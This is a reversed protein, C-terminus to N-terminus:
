ILVLLLSVCQSFIGLAKFCLFHLLRNQVFTERCLYFYLSVYSQQKNYLMNTIFTVLLCSLTLMFPFVSYSNEPLRNRMKMTIKLCFEFLLHYKLRIYHGNRFQFVTCSGCFYLCKKSTNKKILNNRPFSNRVDM